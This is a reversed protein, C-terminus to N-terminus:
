LGSKKSAIADGGFLVQAKTKKRFEELTKKLIDLRLEGEYGALFSRLRAHNAIFDIERADMPYRSVIGTIVDENERLHKLWWEVQLEESPSGLEVAHSFEAPFPVKSLPSVIFLLGGNARLKPLLMSRSFNDKKDDEGLITELDCDYDVFLLMGRRGMKKMFAYDALSAIEKQTVPDFVNRLDKKILIDKLSFKRVILDCDHAVANAADIGTEVSRSFIIANIGEFGARFAKVLGKLEAKARENLILSEMGREPGYVEEADVRGFINVAQSEAAKEIDESTIVPVGEGKSLAENIAMMVANKILGGTFIYKKALRGFNVDGSIELGDPIMGRWIRERHREDPFPFVMRIAARREIAPDMADVKNTALITLCGSREIEILLAMSMSSGEVLQDDSEDFFVIGDCLRAERFIQKIAWTESRNSNRLADMDLRLIPKGLRNAIAKVLMTKGTGSTGSFLFVLGAGSGDSQELGLAKRREANKARCDIARIIDEKFADPLIVQEMRVASEDKEIYDTVFEYPSDYELIFRRVREHLWAGSDLLGGQHAIAFNILGNVVLTGDLSFYGSGRVQKELSDTLISLIDGASMINGIDGGGFGCNKLLSRFRTSIDKMLLLILVKREFEDLRHAQCLNEFKLPIGHEVSGKALRNNEEHTQALLGEVEKKGLFEVKAKTFPKDTGIGRTEVVAHLAEDEASELLASVKGGKERISALVVWLRAEKELASIHEINNRFFEARELVRIKANEHAM